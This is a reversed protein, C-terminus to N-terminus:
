SKLARYRLTSLYQSVWFLINEMKGFTFNNIKIHGLIQACKLKIIIHKFIQIGLVMLKGNPVFPFNITEPAGISLCKLTVELLIMINM